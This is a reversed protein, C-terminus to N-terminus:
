AADNRSVLEVTFPLDVGEFGSGRCCYACDSMFFGKRCTNQPSMISDLYCVHMDKAKKEDRCRTAREDSDDSERRHRQGPPLPYTHNHEVNRPDVDSSTSSRRDSSSLNSSSMNSASLRRGRDFERVADGALATAAIGSHKPPVDDAFGSAGTPM